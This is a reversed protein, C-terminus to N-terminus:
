VSPSGTPARTATTGSRARSSFCSATAAATERVGRGPEGPPAVHDAAALGDGQQKRAPRRAGASLPDGSRRAESQRGEVRPRAAHRRDVEVVIEPRLTEGADGWEMVLKGRRIIVGSGGGTLAYDRAQQLRAESLGVEAYKARPWEAGPFEVAPAAAACATAAAVCFLFPKFISSCLAAAVKNM